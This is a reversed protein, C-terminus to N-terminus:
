SFRRNIWGFLIQGIVSFKDIFFCKVRKLRSQLNSLSQVKLNNKNKGCIPITLLSHSTVGEINYAAVGFYAFVICSEKLLAWIANIFYNRGSGCQGRVLLLLQDNIQDKNSMLHNTVIQM